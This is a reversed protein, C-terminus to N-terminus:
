HGSAKTRSQIARIPGGINGNYLFHPTKQHRTVLYRSKNNNNDHSTMVVNQKYTKAVCLDPREDFYKLKIVPQERDYRSTKLLDTIPIEVGSEMNVINEIKLKSLTQIRHGTALVLLMVLKKVLKELSLSELPHWQKIYDLVIMPDWTVDYRPFSPKTRFAGKLFRKLLAEDSSSTNLILSLASKHSNLTAFSIGKQFLERLFSIITGVSAVYVGIKNRKCYSWWKQLTSSYQRLTSESLSKLMITISDEPIGKKLFSKRIIELGSPIHQEVDSTPDIAFPPFAYLKLNEWPITFADATLAGPDRVWSIYNDCKNNLKSAFLDIEPKGFINIIEQYINQNLSYETEIKLTQRKPYPQYRSQRGRHEKRQKEEKMRGKHYRPQYNLSM